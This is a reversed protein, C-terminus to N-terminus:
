FYDGGVGEPHFWEWTGDSRVHGGMAGFMFLTMGAPDGGASIFKERMKRGRRFHLPFFAATAAVMGVLAFLVSLAGVPHRGSIFVYAVASIVGWIVANGVCQTVAWRTLQSNTPRHNVANNHWKSM